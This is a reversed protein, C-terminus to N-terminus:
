QTPRSYIIESTTGEYARRLEGASWWQPGQPIGARRHDALPDFVLYEYGTAASGRRENVFLWHRGTFSAARHTTVRAYNIAIICGRHAVIFDVFTSWPVGIAYGTDVGYMAKLAARIWKAFLGFQGATNFHNACWTRIASSMTPLPTRWGTGDAQPSIATRWPFKTAPKAGKRARDALMGGSAAGCNDGQRPSGDLQPYWRPRYESM